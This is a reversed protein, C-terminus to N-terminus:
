EDIEDLAIEIDNAGEKLHGLLDRVREPLQTYKGLLEEFEDVTGLIHSCAEKLRSIASQRRM